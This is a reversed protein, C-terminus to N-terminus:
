DYLDKLDYYTEEQKQVFKEPERLIEGMKEVTLNTIPTGNILAAPAGDCLGICEAEEYTFEKEDKVNEKLFKLIEYAGAMMCSLNTCLYIHYKGVKEKHFMHYFSAVSMIWDEPYGLVESILKVGEPHLYGYENQVEHLAAIIATDGEPFIRKVVEIKEKLSAM